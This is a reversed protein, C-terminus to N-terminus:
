NSYKMMQELSIGLDVPLDNSLSELIITQSSNNEVKWKFSNSTVDYDVIPTSQYTFHKLNFAKTQKDLQTINLDPTKFVFIVPSNISLYSNVSGETTMAARLTKFNFSEIECYVKLLGTDPLGERNITLKFTSDSDSKNIYKRKVKSENSLNSLISVRYSKFKDKQTGKPFSFEFESLGEINTQILYEYGVSFIM